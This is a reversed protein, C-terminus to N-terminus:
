DSTDTRKKPPGKRRGARIRSLMAEVADLQMDNPDFAEYVLREMMEEHDPHNENTVADLFEYFGPPGGCDEPPAQRAGDVFVPYEVGPSPDFVDEVSIGRDILASLKTNKDSRVAMGGLTDGVMEPLGYIRGGAEFHHLHMELWDFVAQIVKHLRRLRFDVPVHVRRWIAPEIGELEICLQTIQHRQVAM